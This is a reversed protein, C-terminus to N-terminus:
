QGSQRMAPGANAQMTLTSALLVVLLCLKKM